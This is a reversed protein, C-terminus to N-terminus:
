HYKHQFSIFLEFTLSFLIPLLLIFNLTLADIVCDIRVKEVFDDDFPIDAGCVVDNDKAQSLAVISYSIKTEFSEGESLFGGEVGVGLKTVKNSLDSEAEEKDDNCTKDEKLEKELRKKVIRLFLGEKEVIKSDENSCSAFAFEDVVSINCISSAFIINFCFYLVLDDRLIYIYIFLCKLTTYFVRKDQLPSFLIEGTGIFSSLNVVIGKKSTYPSHFTYACESNLVSDQSSATRLRCKVSLSSILDM